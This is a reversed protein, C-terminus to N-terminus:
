TFMGVYILMVSSMAAVCLVGITVPRALKVSADYRPPM